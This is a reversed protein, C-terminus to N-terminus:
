IVALLSMEVIPADEQFLRSFHYPEARYVVPVVAAFVAIAADKGIVLTMSVIREISQVMAQVTIIKTLLAKPIDAIAGSTDGVMRFDLIEQDLVEVETFSIAM